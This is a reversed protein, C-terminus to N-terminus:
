ADGRCAGILGYLYPVDNSSIMNTGAQAVSICNAREGPRGIPPADGRCTNILRHAYPISSRCPMDVGIAAVRVPHTRYCPRRSARADSRCAVILRHMDPICLMWWSHELQTVEQDHVGVSTM